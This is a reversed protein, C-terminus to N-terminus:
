EEGNEEPPEYDPNYSMLEPVDEFAKEEFYAEDIDNLDIVGIVDAEEEALLNKGKSLKNDINEAAGLRMVAREDCVVYIDGNDFGILNINDIGSQSVAEYVDRIEDYAAQTKEGDGFSLFSDTKAKEPIYGEIPIIGEPTKDWFGIVKFSKNTLAYSGNKSKVAYFVEESDKDRNMIYAEYEDFEPIDKIDSPKFFAKKPVTLNIIGVQTPDITDEEAIVNKGLEIKKDIDSSDGLRMVIREQFILYINSRSRVSIFNIDSLGSNAVASSISKILNLTADVEEGENVFSLPKGPDAIVPTAGIVPVVGEPIVGAIELVKFDRNTLAYLGESKEVAYARDTSELRIVITDPLKRSLQVKNTYPLKSEINVKAEDLDAFFISKGQPIGSAAIIEEETYLTEGEISFGNVKFVAFLLVPSLIICLVLVFAAIVIALRFNRKRKLKKVREQREEPTLRGSNVEERDM